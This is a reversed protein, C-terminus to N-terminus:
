HTKTRHSHTVGLASAVAKTHGTLNETYPAHLNEQPVLLKGYLAETVRKVGAEGHEPALQDRDFGPVLGCLQFGRREAFVQQVRNQLTVWQLLLEAGLLKGLREFIAVGLGGLLGVRFEPDLVGLRAYLVRARPQREFSCFGRVAGDLELLIPLVHRLREGQELDSRERALLEVTMVDDRMYQADLFVSEAGVEIAPYWQLLLAQVRPIEADRLFRLRSGEPLSIGNSLEVITPFPIVIVQCALALESHRTGFCSGTAM